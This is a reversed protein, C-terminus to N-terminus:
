YIRANIYGEAFSVFRPNNYKRLLIEIQSLDLESLNIDTYINFSYQRGKQFFYLTDLLAKEPTACRLGRQTYTFGDMLQPKIGTYVLRGAKGSYTRTRGTKVAYVTKQPVTGIMMYKALASGLSIYSNENIRCCLHELDVEPTTYYGRIFQSLIGTEILIKIRRNLRLNDSENFLNRFDNISFVGKVTDKFSEILKYDLISKNM